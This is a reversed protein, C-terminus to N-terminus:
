KKESLAKGFRESTQAIHEQVPKLLATCCEFGINLFKSSENFCYDMGHQVLRNQLEVVDNITRCSLAAKSLDACETFSRNYSQLAEESADKASASVVDFCETVAEANARCIETVETMMRPLVDAAHAFQETAERGIEQIKSTKAAETPALKRATQAM